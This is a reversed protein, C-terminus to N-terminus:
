PTLAKVWFFQKDTKFGSYKEQSKVELNRRAKIDGHSFFKKGHDETYETSSHRQSLLDATFKESFIFFGSV